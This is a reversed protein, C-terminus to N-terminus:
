AGRIRKEVQLLDIEEEVRAVLHELRERTDHIELIAQKQEIKVGLHAAITDALRAANEINSLSALIEPPTKKNLKVYQEFHALLSRTLAEVERGDEPGSELM